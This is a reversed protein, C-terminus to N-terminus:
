GQPNVLLSTLFRNAMSIALLFIDFFHVILIMFLIIM